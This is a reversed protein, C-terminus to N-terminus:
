NSPIYHATPAVFTQNWQPGGNGFESSLNGIAATGAQVWPQTAAKNEEYVKQNFALSKDAEQAQINAAQVAAASQTDAAKGAASAGIAATGIGAAASTGLGIALATGTAIGSM